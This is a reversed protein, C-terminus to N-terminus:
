CLTQLLKSVFKAWHSMLLSPNYMRELLFYTNVEETTVLYTYNDVKCSPQHRVNYTTSSTDDYRFKGVM